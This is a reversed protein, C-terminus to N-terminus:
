EADAKLNLWTALTLSPIEHIVPPRRDRVPQGSPKSGDVYTAVAVYGAEDVAADAAIIIAGECLSRQVLSNAMSWAWHLTASNGMLTFTPGHTALALAPYAALMTASARAFFAQRPRPNDALAAAVHSIHKECGCATVAIIATSTPVSGIQSKLDYVAFLVAEVIPDYRKDSLSFSKNDERKPGNSRYITSLPHLRQDSM